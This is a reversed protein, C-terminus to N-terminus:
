GLIKTARYIFKNPEEPVEILEGDVNKYGYAQFKTLVIGNSFVEGEEMTPLDKGLFINTTMGCETTINVVQGLPTNRITGACELIEEGIPKWILPLPVIDDFISKKLESNNVNQNNVKKEM